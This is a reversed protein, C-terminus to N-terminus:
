NEIILLKEKLGRRTISLIFNTDFKSDYFEKTQLINILFDQNTQIGSYKNRRFRQNNKFQKM